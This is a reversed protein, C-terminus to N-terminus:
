RTKILGTEPREVGALPTPPKRKYVEEHRALIAIDKARRRQAPTVFKLASHKHYNDYWSRFENVWIRAAELSEFGQSPWSPCYKLTRFISEIFANDNIVRPRSHSSGIGLDHLKQMVTQSKLVSGNDRHLTPPKLM